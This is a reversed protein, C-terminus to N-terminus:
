RVPTETREAARRVPVLVHRILQRRIYWPLLPGIAKAAGKLVINASITYRTGERTSEFWNTFTGVYLRKEEWLEICAPTVETMVNPVIGERHVIELTTRPPEAKVLHVERITAPFLESWNRYDRYLQIVRAIPARIIISAEARPM